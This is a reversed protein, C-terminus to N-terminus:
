VAILLAALGGVCGGFLVSAKGDRRLVQEADKEANRFLEECRELHLELERRDGRTLGRFLDDCKKRDTGNLFIKERNETWAAEYASILDFPVTKKM